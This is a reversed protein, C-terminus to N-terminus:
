SRRRPNQQYGGNLKERMRRQEDERAADETRFTRFCLISLPTSYNILLNPRVELHFM